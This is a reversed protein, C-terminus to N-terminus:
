DDTENKLRQKQSLAQIWDESLTIIALNPHTVKQRANIMTSVDLEPMVALLLPKEINQVEPNVLELAENFYKGDFFILLPPKQEEVDKSTPGLAKVTQQPSVFSTNTMAFLMLVMLSFFAMSLALAVETLPNETDGIM